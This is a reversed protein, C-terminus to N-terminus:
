DCRCEGNVSRLTFCDACLVETAGITFPDVKPTCSAHVLEDSDNYTVMDGAHIRRGCEAPCLAVGDFKAPFSM